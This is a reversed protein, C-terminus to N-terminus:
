LGKNLTIEGQHVFLEYIINFYKDTEISSLPLTESYIWERILSCKPNLVNAYVDDGIILQAYGHHRYHKMYENVQARCIPFILCDICPCKKM